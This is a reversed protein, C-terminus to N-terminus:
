RRIFECVCDRCGCQACKAPKRVEPFRGSEVRKRLFGAENRLAARDAEFEIYDLWAAVLKASQRALWDNLHDFSIGLKVMREVNSHDDDDHDHDGNSERKETSLGISERKETSLDVSAPLMDVYKDVAQGSIVGFEFALQQVPMALRWGRRRGRSELVGHLELLQLGETIASRGYATYLALERARLPGVTLVALLISLPAGKFVPLWVASGAEFVKMIVELLWGYAVISFDPRGGRRGFGSRAGDCCGAGPPGPM